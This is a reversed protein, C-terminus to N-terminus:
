NSASVLEHLKEETDAVLVTDDAHRINIMNERGIRVEELDDLEEIIKQSYLNFWDSSLVCRQRVGQKIKIWETQYDGIQVTPKQNWFLNMIMIKDKGDIGVQGLIEMIEERKVRDFAKLFDIYWLYVDKQM